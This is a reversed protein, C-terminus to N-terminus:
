ATVPADIQCLARIRDLVAKWERELLERVLREYALNAEVAFWQENHAAVRDRYGKGRGWENACAHWFDQDPKLIDTYISQGMLQVRRLLDDISSEMVRAAQEVLEKADAMEPDQLVNAAVAKFDDFKTEAALAAIRRAGYGLHHAYDLNLWGGYRNVTARITSAYSHGMATLLSDHLTGRVSGLLSNNDVWVVLRRAADRVVEQVQEKEYNQLLARASDIVVTLRKRYSAQLSKIREVIFQNLESPADERANFFGVPVEEIARRHLQMEIQERKLEYGEDVTKANNGAADDKVALAESPRALALISAKLALNRVGAEKARALLTQIVPAPAENFYTCLITITHPADFHCELDAREGTQDIGKTDVLRVRLGEIGIIPETVVMDIRKPLSFDPHRGNNILEFTEKLWELAPKGAAPAYWTDRKDRRHLQMRALIEVALARSDSFRSALEKAPDHRVPKGDSGKERRVQLGSMNRVARMIEKSLGASDGEGELEDDASSPQPKVFFEAFDLVDRRIEEETRPEILLGYAPGQRLHVECITV